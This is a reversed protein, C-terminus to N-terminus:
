VTNKEPSQLKKKFSENKCRKEEKTRRSSFLFSVFIHLSYSNSLFQDDVVHYFHQGHM